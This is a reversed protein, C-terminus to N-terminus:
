GCIVSIRIKYEPNYGLTLDKFHACRSNVDPWCRALLRFAFKPGAKRSPSINWTWFLSYEWQPTELLLKKPKNCPAVQNQLVQSSNWEAQPALWPSFDPHSTTSRHWIYKMELTHILKVGHKIKLDGRIGRHWTIWSNNFHLKVPLFRPESESIGKLLFLQIKIEFFYKWHKIEKGPVDRHGLIRRDRGGTGIFGTGTSRHKSFPVLLWKQNCQHLQMPFIPIVEDTNRKPFPQLSPALGLCSLPFM